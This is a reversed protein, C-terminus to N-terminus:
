SLPIFIEVKTGVANGKLDKLDIINVSLGSNNLSNLIELREKTIMMGFSKHKTQDRGKLEQSKKRGVGNDEISCKIIGKVILEKRASILIKNNKTLIARMNKDNLTIDVTSSFSFDPLDIEIKHKDSNRTTLSLFIQFQEIQTVSLSNSAKGFVHEIDGFPTIKFYGSTYVSLYVNDQVDIYFSNKFLSKFQEKLKDNYQYPYISDNDFYALEGSHMAFWIRGRHDEIINFVTNSPLGEALGFNKFNYGDFRSVGLQTAFWLYAKSDQFAHYVESSPLGNEVTYHRFTPQPQQAHIHECFLLTALLCYTYSLRM